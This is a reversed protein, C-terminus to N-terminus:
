VVAFDDAADSTYLLCVYCGVVGCLAGAITAVYLGNRFFEFEYPRILEAWSM